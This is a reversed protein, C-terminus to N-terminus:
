RGGGTAFEKGRDGAVLLTEGNFALYTAGVAAWQLVNGQADTRVHVLRGDSDIPGVDIGRGQHFGIYDHVEGWLIRGGSGTKGMLVEVSPAHDVWDRRLPVLAVLFYPNIAQARVQLRPKVGFQWPFLDADVKWELPNILAVEMANETKPDSIRIVNGSIQEWRHGDNTHLLWTYVAPDYDRQIDDAIVFYPAPNTSIDASDEDGKVYLVYRDAQLVPVSLQGDWNRDYASKADGQVFGYAESNGYAVILGDVGGGAGSFGQGLGDILVLNHGATQEKGQPHVPNSRYGSDVAMWSGYAYLTFHNEDAQDHTTPRFPASTFEFYLDDDEWGTRWRVLGAVEFHEERPVGAEDPSEAVLDPYWILTFPHAGSRAKEWLWLGVPDSFEGALRLAIYDYVLGEHNANNMANFLGTGPILEGALFRMVNGLPEKLYLNPGGRRKLAEIFPIGIGLGFQLYGNGEFNAGKPDYGRRLYSEVVDTAVWVHEALDIRREYGEIALAGLGMAGNAVASWNHFPIWFSRETTYAGLAEVYDEIVGAVKERDDESLYDHLWDFGVALGFTMEGLAHPGFRAERMIPSHPGFDRAVTILIRRGYEAYKPDETMLWMFAVDHIVKSLRRGFIPAQVDPEVNADLVTLPNEPDVYGPLGRWMYLAARGQIDAYIEALAPHKAKERLRALDDRDFFLRPFELQAPKRRLEEKFAAVEEPRQAAPVFPEREYMRPRFTIPAKSPNEIRQVSLSEFAVSASDSRLGVRGATALSDTDTAHLVEDGDIYLKVESGIAEVRFSVPEGVRVAARVLPGIRRWNRGDFYRLQATSNANLFVSYYTGSDSYRLVIRAGANSPLGATERITVTGQVIINDYAGETLLLLAGEELGTQLVQDPLSVEWTGSAPAPSLGDGEQALALFPRLAIGAVLLAFLAVYRGPM